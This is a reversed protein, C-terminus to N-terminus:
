LGQTHVFRSSYRSVSLAFGRGLNEKHPYEKGQMYAMTCIWEAFHLLRECERNNKKVKGQTTYTGQHKELYLEGKYEPYNSVDKKLEDFFKESSSM